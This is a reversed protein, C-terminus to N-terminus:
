PKIYFEVYRKKKLEITAKIVRMKMDESVDKVVFSLPNFEEKIFKKVSDSTFHLDGKFRNELIVAVQKSNMPEIIEQKISKATM